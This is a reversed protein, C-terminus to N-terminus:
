CTGSQQKWTAERSEAAHELLPPKTQQAKPVGSPVNELSCNASASIMPFCTSILTSSPASTARCLRRLLRRHRSSRSRPRCCGRCMSSASSAAASSGWTTPNPPLVAWPPAVRRACRSPRGPRCRSAPLPALRPAAAASCPRPPCTALTSRSSAAAAPALDPKPASSMSSSASSGAIPVSRGFASGMSPSTSGQQAGRM